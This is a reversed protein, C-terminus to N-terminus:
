SSLLVFEGAYGLDHLLVGLEDLSRGLFDAPEEVVVALFLAVSGVRFLMRCSGVQIPQSM